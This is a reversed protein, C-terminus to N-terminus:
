LVVENETTQLIKLLDHSIEKGINKLFQQYPIEKFFVVFVREILNEGQHSCDIKQNILKGLAHCLNEWVKQKKHTEFRITKHCDETFIQIQFLM